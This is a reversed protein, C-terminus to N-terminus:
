CTSHSHPLRFVTNVPNYAEHLPTLIFTYWVERSYLSRHGDVIFEVAIDWVASLIFSNM